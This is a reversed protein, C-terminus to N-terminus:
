IGRELSTRWGATRARALSLPEQRRAAPHFATHASRLHEPSVHTYASVSCTLSFSRSAQYTRPLLMRFKESFTM